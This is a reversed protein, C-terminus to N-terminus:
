AGHWPAADDPRKFGRALRPHSHADDYRKLVFM